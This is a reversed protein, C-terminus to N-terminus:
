ISERASKANLQRFRRRMSIAAHVLNLVFLLLYAGIFVQKFGWLVYLWCLIGTDTPLLFLSQNKPPVHKTESKLLQEALVQSFFQGTTVVAYAIPITMNWEDVGDIFLAILTCLHVLPMRMADVVHDLWEGAPSSRRSLRAVQGDTSDLLYGLALLIAVCVGVLVTRPALLLIFLAAASVIASIVTVANPGIRWRFAVVAVYQALSYHGM